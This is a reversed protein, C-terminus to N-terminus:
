LRENEEETIGPKTVENLYHIRLLHYRHMGNSSITYKDPEYESICIPEIKFSNSLKEIIDNNSYSLMGDARSAYTNSHDGFYSRMSDIINAHNSYMFNYAGIVDTISIIGEENKKWIGYDFAIPNIEKGTLTKAEPLKRIQEVDINNEDLFRKITENKDLEYYNM